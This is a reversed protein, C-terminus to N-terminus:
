RVATALAMYRALNCTLFDVSHRSGIVLSRSPAMSALPRSQRVVQLVFFLEIATECFPIPM